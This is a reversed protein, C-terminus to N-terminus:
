PVAKLQLDQAGMDTGGEVGCGPQTLTQQVKGTLTRPDWTIHSAFIGASTFSGDPCRGSDNKNDMTWQGNVLRAELPPSTAPHGIAVSACGDGCPTFYWDVSTSKGNKTYTALFHGHMTTAPQGPAAAPQGAPPTTNAAAPSTEPAASGAERHPSTCATGAALGTLIAASALARTIIM